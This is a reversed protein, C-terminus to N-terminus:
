DEYRARKIRQLEEITILLREDRGLPTITRQRQLERPDLTVMTLSEDLLPAQGLLQGDPGAVLSGGWFCLGDEFGIRNVMVVVAGLLQAFTRCLREYTEAVEPRQEAVGRTPSNAICVLMEVGEAQMIAAASLHWLDECVLLGVRGFRQTDFARIREGRAFYRQEDFLGYTPLYVKHHVHRLRGGEAYMAANYIRHGSTREVYGMVLDTTDAAEILERLEPADRELAVDTVMDRLFYGTLSLEPFVVLDAKAAVVQDIQQLHLRRNKAVDGLAPAIQALAVTLQRPTPDDATLAPDSQTSEITSM